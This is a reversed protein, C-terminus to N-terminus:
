FLDAIPPVTLLVGLVLLVFAVRCVTVSSVNRGRWALHLFAWAALWVLIAVTTVGSLPGTPAYFTAARKVAISQDAVIALVALAFCGIGAALVAAAGPGNPLAMAKADRADNM